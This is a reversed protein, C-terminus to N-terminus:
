EGKLFVKINRDDTRCFYAELAEKASRRFVDPDSFLLRDILELRDRIDAISYAVPVPYDLTHLCDYHFTLSPAVRIVPVGAVVAELTTVSAGTTIVMRVRGFWDQVLGEDAFEWEAGINNLFVKLKRRDLLPHPRVSVKIGGRGQFVGYVKLFLDFTLKYSFTLPLLIGSGKAGEIVPVHVQTFRLNPGDLLIERPFGNRALFRPYASGSCVIRDPLPRAFKEQDALYYSLQDPYSVTHQYGLIKAKPFSSRIVLIFPHEQANGEFPYVVMSLDVGRAKLRLLLYAAANLEVLSMDFGSRELVENMLPSLDEGKIMLGSVRILSLRLADRIIRLHDGLTLYKEPVVVHRGSSALFRYIDRLPRKLNFFMPLILVYYGEKLFWESLEGFNRERFKGAKDFNGETIWTRMLVVRGQFAKAPERLSPIHRAAMIRNIIGWVVIACKAVIRAWVLSFRVVALREWYLRDEVPRGAKRALDAVMGALAPSDVVFIITRQDDMIVRKARFYHVVLEAFANAGVNKSALQGSWWAFSSYRANLQGWASLLERKVDAYVTSFDADLQDFSVLSPWAKEAFVFGEYDECLFCFRFDQKDQIRLSRLDRVHIISVKSM